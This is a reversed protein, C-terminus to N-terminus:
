NPALVFQPDFCIVCQVMFDTIMRNRITKKISTEHLCLSLHAKEQISLPDGQNLPFRRKARISSVQEIFLLPSFIRLLPLEPFELRKELSFVPFLPSVKFYLIEAQDKAM